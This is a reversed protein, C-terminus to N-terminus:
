HEKEINITNMKFDLVHLIEKRNSINSELLSYSNNFFYKISDTRKVFHNFIKEEIVRQVNSSLTLIWM